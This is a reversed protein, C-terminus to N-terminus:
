NEIQNQNSLPRSNSKKTKSCIRYTSCGLGLLFIFLINILFAYGCNKLENNFSINEILLYYFILAHTTLSGILSLGKCTTFQSKTEGDRWCCTLFNWFMYMIGYISVFALIIENFILSIYYWRQNNDLDKWTVPHGILTFFTALTILATSVYALGLQITLSKIM